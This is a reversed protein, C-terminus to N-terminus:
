APQIREIPCIKEVTARKGEFRIRARGGPTYGLFTAVEPYTVNKVIKVNGPRRYHRSHLFQYVVRDGPKFQHTTAPASM